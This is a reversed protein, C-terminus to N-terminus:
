LVQHNGETQLGKGGYRNDNNFYNRFKGWIISYVMDWKEMKGEWMKSLFRQMLALATV